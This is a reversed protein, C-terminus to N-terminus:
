FYFLLNISGSLNDLGLGISTTGDGIFSDENVQRPSNTAPDFTERVILRRLQSRWAVMYGFEGGISIKPAFFYEVGIFGRAGVLYNMGPKDDVVRSEGDTTINSGFNHTTPTPFDATIPNGYQYVTHNNNMGFVLEGGYIGQLRTSGRRKEYGPAIVISTNSIKQWDESFAPFDPNDNVRDQSVVAKNITTGVSVNFRVRYATQEDVMMKGFLAINETINDAFNFGPASNGDTGNIFNGLYDLFPNASIGLAWEDTVPLYAEGKKNTIIPTGSESTTLTADQAVASAVTILLLALVNYIRRIM